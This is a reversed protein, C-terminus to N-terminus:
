KKKKKSGKSKSVQSASGSGASGGDRKPGRRRRARRSEALERYAATVTAADSEFGGLARESLAREHQYLVGFGFTSEGATEARRAIRRLWQRSTVGDQVDGLVSHLRNCATRLPAVTLDGKTPLAAVNRRLAKARKRVVHTLEERQALTLDLSDLDRETRTRAKTFREFQRDVGRLVVEQEAEKAASKKGSKKGGTADAKAAPASEEAVGVLAQLRDLLDLYRESALAGAVRTATRNEERDLETAIRADVAPPVLDDPFEECLETLRGRVVQVDRVRGLVAALEKLDALVLPLDIGADRAPVELEAAYSSITSRLGRVAVRMRHVGTETARRAAPDESLVTELDAALASAVSSTPSPSEPLPGLARALKSASSSPRAGAEACAAGVTELLEDGGPVAADVLEVEWERWAPDGGETVHSVTRVHDDCFEVVATGGSDRLVTSHRENDIRAIPRLERRRVLGAVAAVLEAPVPEDPDSGLPAHIERRGTGAPLKLHWGEDHGGTRRRLTVRHRTLALDDTDVYVASLAFRETEDPVLPALADAGPVRADGDVEFTTEVEVHESNAM